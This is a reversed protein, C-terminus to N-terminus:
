GFSYNAAPRRVKGAVAFNSRYGAMTGLHNLIGRVLRKERLILANHRRVTRGRRERSILARVINPWLRGTKDLISLHCEIGFATTNEFPHVGGLSM